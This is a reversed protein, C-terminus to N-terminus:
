RSELLDDIHQRKAGAHTDEFDAATGTRHRPLDDVPDAIAMHKRDVTRRGCDPLSRGCTTGFQRRAVEFQSADSGFVKDEACGVCREVNRDGNADARQVAAMGLSTDRRPPPNSSRENRASAEEDIAALRQAFYHKWSLTAGERKGSATSNLPGNLPAANARRRTLSQGMDLM